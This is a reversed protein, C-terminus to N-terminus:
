TSSKEFKNWMKTQAVQPPIDQISVIKLQIKGVNSDLFGSLIKHVGWLITVLLEKSCKICELAIKGLKFCFKRSICQGKLGAIIFDQIANLM